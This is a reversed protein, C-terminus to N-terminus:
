RRRQPPTKWSRSRHSTHRGTRKRDRISERSNQPYVLCPEDPALNTHEGRSPRRRNTKKGQSSTSTTPSTPNSLGAHAREAPPASPLPARIAGPGRAARRRRNRGPHGNVRLRPRRRLTCAKTIRREGSGKPRRRCRAEVKAGSATSRFSTRAGKFVPHPRPITPQQRHHHQHQHDDRRPAAGPAGQAEAAKGRPKAAPPHSSPADGALTKACRARTPEGIGGETASIRDQAEPRPLLPFYATISKTLMNPGTHTNKPSPM